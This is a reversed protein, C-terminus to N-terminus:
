LFCREVEVECYGVPTEYRIADHAKHLLAKGLPSNIAVSITDIATVDTEGNLTTIDFSPVLVGKVRKKPPELDKGYSVIRKYTIYMKDGINWTGPIYVIKARKELRAVIAEAKNIQETLDDRATNESIDKQMNASDADYEEMLRALEAKAEELEDEQQQELDEINAM